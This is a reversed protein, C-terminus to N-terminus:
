TLGTHLTHECSSTIEGTLLMDPLCHISKLMQERPTATGILVSGPTVVEPHKIQTVTQTKLPSCLISSKCDTHKQIKEKQWLSLSAFYGTIFDLSYLRLHPNTSCHTINDSPQKRRHAYIHCAVIVCAPHRRMILNNRIM